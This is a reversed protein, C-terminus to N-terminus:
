SVMAYIRQQSNGLSEQKIISFSQIVGTHPAHPGGCFEKSYANYDGSEGSGGIIYVKVTDSYKNDFLGIAGIEKAKEVPLMEFHVPLDEKIKENVTQELKKVQEDTLKKDYNFDFRLRETTINSGTQHVGTGLMDRIAQQLLHTATHGKVTNEQQDALVGKFKGASATRSLNQHEEMKEAFAQEDFVYGLSK